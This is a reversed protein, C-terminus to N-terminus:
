INKDIEDFPHRKAPEMGKFTRCHSRLAFIWWVSAKPDHQAIKILINKIFENIKDNDGISSILLSLHPEM